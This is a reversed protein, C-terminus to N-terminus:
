RIVKLTDETFEKLSHLKMDALSFEPKDRNEKEPVVVAKMRAAKAAILGNLSDEFVLCKLPDAGLEEACSLYVSPHPKGYDQHEGSHRTLFYDKLHFHELVTNIMLMPSSSALGIKFGRQKFFDLIYTAGEMLVGKQLVREVVEELIEQSVQETSKDKWGCQKHWYDVVETTRLGITKVYDDKSLYIDMGAFVHEMAERWLPESDVLLGDMDFIVTKIM